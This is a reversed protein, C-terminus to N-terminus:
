KGKLLYDLTCGKFYSKEDYKWTLKYIPVDANKIEEKISKSPIKFLGYHQLHHPADSSFYKVKEWELKFENNKKLTLAFIYHFCFYPHFKLPEGVNFLIDFLKKKYSTHFIMREVVKNIFRYIIKNQNEFNTHEVYDNLQNALINAIKSDKSSVIFWSSIPFCIGPPRFMFFDNEIYQDLWKDLPKACYCTLDVWM